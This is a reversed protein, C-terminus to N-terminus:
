YEAWEASETSLGEESLSQEFNIDLKACEKALRNKNIRTIKEQVADQIAKSRNPYVNNQVMQDLEEVLKQELSIAIKISSM